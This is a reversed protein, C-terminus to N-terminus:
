EDVGNLRVLLFCSKPSAAGNLRYRETAKRTKRRASSMKKKCRRKISGGTMMAPLIFIYLSTTSPSPPTPLVASVICTLKRSYRLRVEGASQNATTSLGNQQSRRGWWQLNTGCALQWRGATKCARPGRYQQGLPIYQKSLGISEHRLLTQIPKCCWMLIMKRGSLCIGGVFGVQWPIQGSPNAWQLWSGIGQYSM